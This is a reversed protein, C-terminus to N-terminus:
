QKYIIQFSDKYTIGQIFIGAIIGIVLLSPYHIGVLLILLPLSWMWHHIHIINGKYLFVTSKLLQRRGKTKRGAIVESSLFGIIFGIFINM